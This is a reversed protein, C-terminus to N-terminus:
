HEQKTPKTARITSFPKLEGGPKGEFSTQTFSTPTIDSFVEKFSIEKTDGSSGSEDRFVFQKDEWKAVNTLLACGQPNTNVCWLTRFGQETGDWWLVAMGVVEGARGTTHFEEIMSLGGPGPRWIERGHGVGISPTKSPDYETISWTGSLSKLLKQVQFESEPIAKDSDKSTPSQAYGGTAWFVLLVFCCLDRMPVSQLLAQSNHTLDAVAAPSAM